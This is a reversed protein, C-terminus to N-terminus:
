HHSQVGSRSTTPGANFSVMLTFEKCEPWGHGYSSVGHMQSKTLPDIHHLGTEKRRVLCFTNWYTQLSSAARLTDSRSQLMWHFFNHLVQIPIQRLTDIPEKRRFRCLRRPRFQSAKAM